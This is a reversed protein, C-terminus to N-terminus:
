MVPLEKVIVVVFDFASIFVKLGGGFLPQQVKTIECLKYLLQLSSVIPTPCVELYVVYLFLHTTTSSSSSSKVMVRPPYLAPCEGEVRVRDRSALTPSSLGELEKGTIKLSLM